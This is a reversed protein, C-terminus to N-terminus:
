PFINFSCTLLLGTEWLVGPEAPNFGGALPFYSTSSTNPKQLGCGMYGDVWPLSATSVPHYFCNLRWGGCLSGDVAKTGLTKDIFIVWDGTWAGSGRPPYSIRHHRDKTVWPGSTPSGRREEAWRVLRGEAVPANSGQAKGAKLMNVSSYPHCRGWGMACPDQYAALTNKEGVEEKIPNTTKPMHIICPLGLSLWFTNGYFVFVSTLLLKGAMEGKRFSQQLLFRIYKMNEPTSFLAGWALGYKYVQKWLLLWGPYSNKNIQIRMTKFELPHNKTIISLVTVSEVVIAIFLLSCCAHSTKGWLLQLQLGRLSM